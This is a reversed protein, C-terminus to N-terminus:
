TKESRSSDILQKKWEKICKRTRDLTRLDDRYYKGKEDRRPMIGYCVYVKVGREVAEKIIELDKETVKKIYWPYSM